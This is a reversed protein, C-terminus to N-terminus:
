CQLSRLVEVSTMCLLRETSFVETALALGGDGARLEGM